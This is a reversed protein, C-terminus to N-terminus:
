GGRELDVVQELDRCGPCFEFSAAIATDGSALLEALEAETDAFQELGRRAAELEAQTVARHAGCSRCTYTFITM